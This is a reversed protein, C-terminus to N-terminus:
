MFISPLLFLTSHILVSRLYIRPVGLRTRWAPQPMLYSGARPAVRVAVPVAHIESRRGDFVWLSLREGPRFHEPPVSNGLEFRTHYKKPSSPVKAITQPGHHAQSQRIHRPLIWAYRICEYLALNQRKSRESMIDFGKGHSMRGVVLTGSFFGRFRFSRRDIKQRRSVQDTGMDSLKEARWPIVERRNLKGPLITRCTNPCNDPLGCIKSLGTNQGLQHRLM